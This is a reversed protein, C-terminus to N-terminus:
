SGVEKGRQRGGEGNYEENKRGYFECVNWLKGYFGVLETFGCSIICQMKRERELFFLENLYGFKKM